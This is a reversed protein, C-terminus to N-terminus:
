MSQKLSANLKMVVRCLRAYQKPTVSSQPIFVTSSYLNKLLKKLFSLNKLDEDEFALLCGWVGVRSLASLQKKDQPSFQCEGTVTLTFSKTLLSYVRLFKLKERTTDVDINYKLAVSFLSSWITLNKTKM